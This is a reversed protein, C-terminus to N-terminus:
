SRKKLEGSLFELQERSLEKNASNEAGTNSNEIILSLGMPSFVIFHWEKEQVVYLKNKEMKIIEMAGIEDGTGGSLLFAEGEMLLFAEQTEHHRGMSSIASVDNTGKKYGSQAIRWSEFDLLKQFGEGGVHIIEM